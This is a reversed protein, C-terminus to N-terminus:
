GDRERRVVPSVADIGSQHRLLSVLTADMDNRRLLCHASQEALLSLWCLYNARKDSIDLWTKDSRLRM